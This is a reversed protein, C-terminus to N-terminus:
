GGVFRFDSHGTRRTFSIPNGKEDWTPTLYQYIQWIYVHQGNIFIDMYQNKYFEGWTNPICSERLKVTIQHNISLQKFIFALKEEENEGKQEIKPMFNEFFAFINEIM